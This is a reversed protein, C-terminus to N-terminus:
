VCLVSEAREIAGGLSATRDPKGLGHAGLWTTLQLRSRNDAIM